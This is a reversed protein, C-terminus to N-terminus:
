GAVRVPDPSAVPTEAARSHAELLRKHWAAVGRRFYSANIDLTASINEFSYVDEDSTSAMWEAAEAFLARGVRDTALLYKQYYDLANEVIALMLRKEGSLAARRRRAGVVLGAILVDPEFIGHDAM